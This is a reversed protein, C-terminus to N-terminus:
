AGQFHCDPFAQRVEDLAPKKEPTQWFNIVQTTKNLLLIRDRESIWPRAELANKLEEWADARPWFFYETVPSRRETGRTDTGYLQDLSVAVTKDLWLFNLSFQAVTQAVAPEELRALQEAAWSSTDESGEAVADDSADAATELEEVAEGEAEELAPIEEDRV